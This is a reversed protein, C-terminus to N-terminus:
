NGEGDGLSCLFDCCPFVRKSLLFHKEQSNLVTEQTKSVILLYGHKPVDAGPLESSASGWFASRTASPSQEEGVGRRQSRSQCQLQSCQAM